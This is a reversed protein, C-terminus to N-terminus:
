NRKTVPLLVPKVGAKGSLNYLLERLFPFMIATAGFRCFDAFPPTVGETSEGEEVEVSFTGVLVARLRVPQGETAPFDLGMLVEFSREDTVDWNWVVGIEAEEESMWESPAQRIYMQEVASMRELAYAARLRENM